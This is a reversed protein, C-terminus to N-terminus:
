IVIYQGPDSTGDTAGGAVAVLEDSALDRILAETLQNTAEAVAPLLNQTEMNM